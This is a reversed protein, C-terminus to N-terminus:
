CWKGKYERKTFFDLLLYTFISFGMSFIFTFWDPEGITSRLADCPIYKFANAIFAM